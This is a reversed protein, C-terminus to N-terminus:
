GSTRKTAALKRVADMISVIKSRAFPNVYGSTRIYRQVTETKKHGTQEMIEPVSFGAEWAWTVFGARLSHGAFLEVNLGSTKAAVKVIDAVGKPPLRRGTLKGERASQFLPGSKIGSAELWAKVAAVPCRDPDDTASPVPIFRSKGEQDTKSWPQFVILGEPVFTIHEVDMNSVESRRSATCFGLLMVARDRKGILTTPDPSAALDLSAANKQNQRSGKDRRIAMLTTRVREDSFASTLGELKHKKDLSSRYRVLTAIKKGERSQDLFFAVATDVTAPLASVGQALCYMEFVKWDAALARRTAPALVGDLVRKAEEALDPRRVFLSIEGAAPAAVPVLATLKQRRM